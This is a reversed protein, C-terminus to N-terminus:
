QRTLAELVAQSKRVSKIADYSRYTYAEALTTNKQRTGAPLQMEKLALLRMDSRMSRWQRPPPRELHLTPM